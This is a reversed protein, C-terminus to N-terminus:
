RRKICSFVTFKKTTHVINAGGFIRKLKGFYDLHRNAVVRLEGGQCLFQHAENFMHWAIEDTITNQQHFPPNCLVLDFTGKHTADIESFCHGVSFMAREGLSTNHLTHRVSAIAMFSEDIFTVNSEPNRHLYDVGLVGNGCGLDVVNKAGTPMADLLVRAGIDLKDKSFVNAYQALPMVLEPLELYTPYQRLKGQQQSKRLDPSVFILRSKKKALSTKTEGLYKEFIKLANSTVMKVKASAIIVTQQSIRSQLKILLHELYAMSRPLKILVHSYIKNPINLADVVNPTTTENTQTNIHIAQKAMFSDTVVDVNSQNVCVSLAGFEDNIILVSTCTNACEERQWHELILEDASDWAQLSNDRTLPFRQLHFTEEGIKFNSTNLCLSMM